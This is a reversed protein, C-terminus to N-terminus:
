RASISSTASASSIKSSCSCGPWSTPRVISQAGFALMIGSWAPGLGPAAGAVLGGPRPRATDGRGLRPDVRGLGLVSTITKTRLQARGNTLPLAEGVKRRREAKLEERESRPRRAPRRFRRISRNCSGASSGASSCSSCSGCHSSWRGVPSRVGLDRQGLEARGGMPLPRETGRRLGRRPKVDAFVLTWSLARPRSSGTSPGEVHELRARDAVTAPTHCRRRGAFRRRRRVHCSNPGARDVWEPAASAPGLGSSGVSPPASSSLGFPSESGPGLPRHRCGLWAGASGDDLLALRVDSVRRTM